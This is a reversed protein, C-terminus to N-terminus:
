EEESSSSDDEDSDNQATLSTLGGANGDPCTQASSGNGRMVTKPQITDHAGLNHTGHPQFGYGTRVKSPTYSTRARSTGNKGGDSGSMAAGQFQELQQRVQQIKSEQEIASMPKNKKRHAVAPKHPEPEEYDEDVDINDAGSKKRVGRVFILLDHLV